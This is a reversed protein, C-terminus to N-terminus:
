RHFAANQIQSIRFHVVGSEFGRIDTDAYDMVLRGHLEEFTIIEHLEFVNGTKQFSKKVVIELETRIKRHNLGIRTPCFSRSGHMIIFLSRDLLNILEHSDNDSLSRVIIVAELSEIQCLVSNRM